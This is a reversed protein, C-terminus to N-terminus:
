KWYRYSTVRSPLFNRITFPSTPSGEDGTVTTTFQSVPNFFHARLLRDRMVGDDGFKTLAAYAFDPTRGVGLKAALDGDLDQRFSKRGVGVAHGAEGALSLHQGGEIM